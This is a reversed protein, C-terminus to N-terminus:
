TMLAIRYRLIGTEYCQYVIAIEGIPDVVDYPDASQLYCDPSRQRDCTWNYADNRIRRVTEGYYWVAGDVLDAYDSNEALDAPDVTLIVKELADLSEATFDWQQGAGYHEIWARFDRERAQLWGALYETDLQNRRRTKRGRRAFAAKARAQRRAIAWNGYNRALRTPDARDLMWELDQLLYISIPQCDEDDLKDITLGRLPSDYEGDRRPHFNWRGPKCRRLAEGYYWVAGTTFLENDPHVLAERTPTKELVIGALQELSEYSFDWIYGAGYEVVWTSFADERHAAWKQLATPEPDPDLGPTPPKTPQWTPETSRRDQAAQQWAEYVRGFTRGDRWNRALKVLDSLPLDVVEPHESVVTPQTTWRWRGGATRLLSEGLYAAVGNDFAGDDARDLVIRELRHISELSTDLNIDAATALPLLGMIHGAVSAQWADTADQWDTGTWTRGADVGSLEDVWYAFYDFLGLPHGYRLMASLHWRPSISWDDSARTVGIEKLYTQYEWKSPVSRRLIEGFYWVAGDAFAANKPDAFEAETPTMRFVTRALADASDRSFDWAATGGFRRVWDPFAQEQTTLWRHLRETDAAPPPPVDLRPTHEARPEWGPHAAAYEGAAREWTEYLATFTDGNTQYIIDVPSIPELCLAEDAHVLPRCRVPDWSWHGGAARRLTQGLYAALADDVYEVEDPYDGAAVVQDLVHLSEASHDLVVDDPLFDDLLASAVLLADIWSDLDASRNEEATSM